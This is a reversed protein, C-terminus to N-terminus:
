PQCLCLTAPWFNCSLVSIISVRVIPPIRRTTQHFLCSRTRTTQQMATKEHNCSGPFQQISQPIISTFCAFYLTTYFLIDMYRGETTSELSLMINVVHQQVHPQAISNVFEKNVYYGLIIFINRRAEFINRRAERPRVLESHLVRSSM